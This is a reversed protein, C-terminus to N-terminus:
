TAPPRNAAREIRSAILPLFAPDREIAVVRFGDLLAAEVTTGSGAFPELVVGRRPTVLGILWRMLSLPKVTAHAVGFARPREARSAKGDYHFVPFRGSVRVSALSAGVDADLRAAVGADLAVNVPWRRDGFRAADVNLAGTGHALVNAVISSEVPKRAILIPEFGPRLGTGWGAFARAEVTVPEGQAVVRSTRGLVSEAESREVIRDVRAAGLHQDIARSVDMSKPMGSSYLWAIQDRVEFGAQEVGAVLRHWTRTGGFAALHGGPRLVRLTGSAWAACWAQFVEGDSLGSTDVEALSERFGRAGDWEQDAFGLGYPPDTVVADVSAAVLQPLVAVTDGVYVAVRGDDVAPLLEPM